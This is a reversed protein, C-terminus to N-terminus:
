LTQVVRRSLMLKGVTRHLDECIKTDLANYLRGLPCDDCNKMNQCIDMRLTELVDAANTIMVTQTKNREIM